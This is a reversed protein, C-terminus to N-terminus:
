PALSVWELCRVGGLPNSLRVAYAGARRAAAAGRGRGRGVGLPVGEPALLERM